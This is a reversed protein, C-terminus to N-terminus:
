VLTGFIIRFFNGFSKCCYCFLKVHVVVNMRQGSDSFGFLCTLSHRWGPHKLNVLNKDFHGSTSFLIGHSSKSLDFSIVRTNLCFLFKISLLSKMFVISSNGFFAALYVRLFRKLRTADIKSGISIADGTVILKSTTTCCIQCSQLGQLFVFKSLKFHTM